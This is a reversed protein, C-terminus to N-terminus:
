LVFACFSKDQKQKPACMCAYLLSHLYLQLRVLHKEIELIRAALKLQNDNTAKLSILLHDWWDDARQPLVEVLYTIKDNNTTEKDRLEQLDSSTLISLKDLEPVLEDMRVLKKLHMINKKIAEDCGSSNSAAMITEYFNDVLLYVSRVFVATRSIYTCGHM